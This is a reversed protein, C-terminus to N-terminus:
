DRKYISVNILPDIHQSLSADLRLREDFTIEDVDDRNGVRVSILNHKGLALILVM